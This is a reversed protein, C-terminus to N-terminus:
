KSGSRRKLDTCVLEASMGDHKLWAVPGPANLKVLTLNHITISLLM